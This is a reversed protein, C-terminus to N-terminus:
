VLLGLERAHAVAQTRSGVGLKSYIQNVYWKVTGLSFVLREAIERNSLGEAILALIEQERATLM